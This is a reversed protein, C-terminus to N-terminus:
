KKPGYIDALLGGPLSLFIGPLAFLSMLMGGQAHSLKLDGIIATLLPPISQLIMGYAATALFVMILVSYLNNNRTQNNIEM